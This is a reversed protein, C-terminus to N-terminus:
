SLLIAVNLVLKREVFIFISVRNQPPGSPSVSPLIRGKAFIKLQIWVITAKKRTIGLKRLGNQVTSKSLRLRRWKSWLGELTKKVYVKLLVSFRHQAKGLISWGKQEGGYAILRKMSKLYAFASKTNLESITAGAKLSRAYEYLQLFM